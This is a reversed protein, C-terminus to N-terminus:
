KQSAAVNCIFMCLDEITEELWFPFNRKLYLLDLGHLCGGHAHTYVFKYNAKVDYIAGKVFIKIPMIDPLGSMDAYVKWLKGKHWFGTVYTFGVPAPNGRNYKKPM